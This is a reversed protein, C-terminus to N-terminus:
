FDFRAGLTWGQFTLNGHNGLFNGPETLAVFYPFQNQGFYVHHEWGAHLGLHFRDDDFMHDWRLGLELDLIPQSNRYSFKFNQLTFFNIPDFEEDQKMSHFGYLISVDINGYLSWGNGLGWLTDMGGEVGIGFWHDKMFIEIHNPTPYGAITRYNIGWKQRIWDARLGMHPRLTMWKSVYFERGLDLDVQNLLLRIYTNSKAATGEVSFLDAPSARVPLIFDDGAHIESRGHSNFRLYTAKIDWGDHCMNYGAGVRFGFNWNFHVDKAHADILTIPAESKVAYALGDEHANWLLWDAFIFLDAGNRVQPRGPPNIMGSSGRRQELANVRNELNRIQASQSNNNSNTNNNNGDANVISTFAILSTAAFPLANKLNWQM